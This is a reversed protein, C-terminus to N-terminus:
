EVGLLVARGPERGAGQLGRDLLAAELRLAPADALVPRQEPRINDDIRDAVIVAAEDAEGLDGAVNGLPALGLERELAGLRLAGVDLLDLREALEGAPDGM